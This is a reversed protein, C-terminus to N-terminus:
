HVDIKAGNFDMTYNDAMISQLSSREVSGKHGNFGVCQRVVFLVIFSNNQVKM